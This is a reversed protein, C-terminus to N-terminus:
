SSSNLRRLAASLLDLHDPGRPPNYAMGNLMMGLWFTAPGFFFAGTRWTSAREPVYQSPHPEM